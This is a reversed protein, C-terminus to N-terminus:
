RDRPILPMGLRERAHRELEHARDRVLRLGRQRARRATTESRHLREGIRLDSVGEVYAIRLIGRDAEEVGVFCLSTLGFLADALSARYVCRAVVVREYDIAKVGGLVAGLHWGVLRVVSPFKSDNM